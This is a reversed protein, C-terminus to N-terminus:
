RGRENKGLENLATHKTALTLANDPNITLSRDCCLIACEYQRMSCLLDAKAAWADWSDRNKKLERGVTSLAQDLDVKNVFVVDGYL